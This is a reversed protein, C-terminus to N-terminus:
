RAKERGVCLNTNVHSRLDVTQRTENYREWRHIKWGSEMRMQVGLVDEKSGTSGESGM